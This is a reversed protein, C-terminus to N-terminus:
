DTCIGPFDLNKRMRSLFKRAAFAPDMADIVSAGVAIRGIGTALVEDLNEPTIGGIAFAPIRINEAILKLLEPGPFRSFDKTSSPFTPGVGIYNAGDLVAKQAQQLSHTSLGILMENGLLNRVDRVSIEEQGVHVGDARTLKAIDPRDNMIFLTPSGETEERLIRGRKLLTREDAKKDRLQILDVGSKVLSRVTQVFEGENHRTDLLVYLVSNELRERSFSTSAVVKHFTYSRYRMQEMDRALPVSFLKSFEELSRLSEQLRAFNSSLVDQFASRSYESKGRLGTGVDALTERSHIRDRNPLKRSLISFDHRFEKLLGTLYPDELVFRVYDELVRIAEQARNASADLIRFLKRFDDANEEPTNKAEKLFRDERSQLPVPFHPSEEFSLSEGSDSPFEEAPKTSDETKRDSPGPSDSENEVSNEHNEKGTGNEKAKEGTEEEHKELNPAEGEHDPSEPSLTGPETTSFDSEHSSESLTTGRNQPIERQEEPTKEENSSKEHPFDPQRNYIADIRELLPIPDLGKERIWPGVGLRDDSLAVSLLLHESALLFTPDSFGLSYNPKIRVMMGGAGLVFSTDLSESKKQVRNLMTFVAIEVEPLVKAFRVSEENVFWSISGSDNKRAFLNRFNSFYPDGPPDKAFPLATEERNQAPRERSPANEYRPPEHGTPYEREADYTWRVADEKKKTSDTSGIPTGYSGFSILPASIPMELTETKGGRFGFAIRFDEIRIDSDCLWQLARSEEEEFLALLLSAISIGKEPELSRSLEEAKRLVRYAGQTLDIRM